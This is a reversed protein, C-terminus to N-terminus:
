GKNANGSAQRYMVETLTPFPLNGNPGPKAPETSEGLATKVDNLSKGQAVM